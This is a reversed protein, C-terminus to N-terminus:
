KSSWFGRIAGILGDGSEKVIHDSIKYETVADNVLDLILPKFPLPCYVLPIEVL